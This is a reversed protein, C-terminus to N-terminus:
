RLVKSADAAKILQAANGPASPDLEGFARGALQEYAVGGATTVALPTTEDIVIRTVRAQGLLAILAATLALPLAASRALLNSIKM